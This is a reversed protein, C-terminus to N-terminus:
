GLWYRRAPGREPASFSDRLTACLPLLALATGLREPEDRSRHEAPVVLSLNTSAARRATYRRGGLELRANSQRLGWALIALQVLRHANYVLSRLLAQSDQTAETRASLAEGWCCKAVSMMTEVKWRQRYAHRSTEDGPTGLLRHMEQRANDCDRARVTSDHAIQRRDRSLPVRRVTDALAADLCEPSIWRRALWWFTAHDPVCVGHLLRRLWNSLRLLDELGRDTLRLYEKPLLAALLSSPRCASAADKNLSLPLVRRSASRSGRSACFNTTWSRWIHPDPWAM